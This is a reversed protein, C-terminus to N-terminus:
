QEEGEKPVFRRSPSSALRRFPSVAFRRLSPVPFPVLGRSERRRATEGNRRRAGEPYPKPPEIRQWIWCRCVGQWAHPICRHRSEWHGGDLTPPWWGSADWTYVALRLERSWADRIVAEVSSDATQSLFVLLRGEPTNAVRDLLEEHKDLQLPALDSGHAWLLACVDRMMELRPGATMPRPTYVATCSTRPPTEAEVLPSPTEASVVSM